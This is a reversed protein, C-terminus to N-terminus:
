QNLVKSEWPSLLMWGNIHSGLHMSHARAMDLEQFDALLLRMRFRNSSVDDGISDNGVVSPLGETFTGDPLPLWNLLPRCFSHWLPVYIFINCLHEIILISRYFCSNSHPSLCLLCAQSRNYRRDKTTYLSFWGVRHISNVWHLGSKSKILLGSWDAWVLQSAIHEEGM